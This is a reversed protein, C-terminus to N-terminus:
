SVPSKKWLSLYLDVMKEWTQEKAYVFGKEIKYITRNKNIVMDEFEDAIGQADKSISIFGAFPTMTLYDKKIQNNYVAFTYKKIALSELIGLYRSSFVVDTNEINKQTHSVFGLFRVDINDKKAWRKAEHMLSGSGLVTLSIKYDKDTLRKVARLYELIGTEEELRGVFVVSFRSKYSKVVVKTNKILSVAGYSVLTPKTGYWKRLFKGICINGKSMKEAIKHMIKAKVGPIENGEYGHFTTYVNKKYFPIFPLYWFFVDHCHIVDAKKILFKHKYLWWWVRFKKLFESNGVRMRYIQIGELVELDKYSHNETIVVVLHGNKVLRKSIELVHKEVGGIHPYFLRSFFLVNM